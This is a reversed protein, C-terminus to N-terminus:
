TLKSFPLMSIADRFCHESHVLANLHCCSLLARFPRLCHELFVFFPTVFHFLTYSSAALLGRRRLLPAPHRLTLLSRHPSRLSPPLSFYHCLRNCILHKHFPRVQKTEVVGLGEKWFSPVVFQSRVRNHCMGVVPLM